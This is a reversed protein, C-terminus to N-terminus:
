DHIKPISYYAVITSLSKERTSQDTTLNVRTKPRTRASSQQKRTPSASYIGKFLSAVRTPPNVFRFVLPRLNDRLEDVPWDFYGYRIGSYGVVSKAMSKAM